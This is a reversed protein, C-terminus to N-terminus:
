RKKLIDIQLERSNMFIDSFIRELYERKLPGANRTALRQLIERERAGDRVPEGSEKKLSGIRVALELRRNLLGLLKEDIDDIANRLSAIDEHGDQPSITEKPAM